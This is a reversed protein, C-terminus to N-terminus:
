WIKELNFPDQGVLLPTLQNIHLTIWPSYVCSFGAEGIGSINEDTRIEVLTSGKYTISMAGWRLPIELREGVTIVEVNTIEM